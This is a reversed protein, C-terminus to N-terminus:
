STIGATELLDDLIVGFSPEYPVAAGPVGHHFVLLTGREDRESVAELTRGDVLRFSLTDPVL